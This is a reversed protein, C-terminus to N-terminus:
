DVRTVSEKIADSFYFDFKLEGGERVLYASELWDFNMIVNGSDTEVLFKGVNRLSAHASNKDIDIEFDSLEWNDELTKFTSVFEIFEEMSYKKQNEFIFYDDTVLEYLKNKDPNDVSLVEFFEDFKDKVEQETIDTQNSSNCSFIFFILLFFYRM